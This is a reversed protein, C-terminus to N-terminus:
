IAAELERQILFMLEGECESLGEYESFGNDFDEETITDEMLQGLEEMRENLAALENAYNM